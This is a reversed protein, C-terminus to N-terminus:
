KWMGRINEGAFELQPFVIRLSPSPHPMPVTLASITQNIGTPRLHAQLLLPRVEIGKKGLFFLGSGTLRPGQRPLSSAQHSNIPAPAPLSAEQKGEKEM